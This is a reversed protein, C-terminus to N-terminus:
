STAVLYVGFHAGQCANAAGVAMTVADSLHLSAVGSAAITWGAGGNSQTAFGLAGPLCAAHGADVVFGGTGRSADLALTNFSVAYKNPNTVTVAVEASDGPFLAISPSGTSLVLSQATDTQALGSGGGSGSWYANAVGGMVVVLVVVAVAALWQTPTPRRSM